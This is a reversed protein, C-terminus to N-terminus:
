LTQQEIEPAIALHRGRNEPPELWHVLAQTVRERACGFAMTLVSMLIPIGM